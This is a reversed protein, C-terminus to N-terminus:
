KVVKVQMRFKKDFQVGLKKLEEIRSANLNMMEIVGDTDVWAVLIGNFHIEVDDSAPGKYLTVAMTQPRIIKLEM